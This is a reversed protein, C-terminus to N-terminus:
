EDDLWAYGAFRGTPGDRRYSYLDPSEQTCRPDSRVDGVGDRWLQQEVGARIDLAPTGGRTRCWAAPVVSAVEERMGPPVEYCGGCIAPGTIASLRRPHAGLEAARAVLAHVVGRALGARGAHAAGVVGAVPDAVLVPVCDAILVALAAGPVTTLLADASPPEGAAQHDAVAVVNGHRQRMWFVRAPDLDLTTAVRLRNEAVAGRQDGNGHGLNLEDYPPASVGGYRDTFAGWAGTGLSHRTLGAQGAQSGHM